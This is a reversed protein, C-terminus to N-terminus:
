REDITFGGDAGIRVDLVDGNPAVMRVRSTQVPESDLDRHMTVILSRIM